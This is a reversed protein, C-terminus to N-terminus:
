RRHRAVGGAVRTTAATLDKIADAVGSFFLDFLQEFTPLDVARKVMTARLASRVTARDPLGVVDLARLMDMSESLSIRVGNQRLLNSFEVLKQDM